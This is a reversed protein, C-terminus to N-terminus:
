STFRVNVSVLGFLQKNSTFPALTEIVSVPEDQKMLLVDWDSLM